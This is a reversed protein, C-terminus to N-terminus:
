ARRRGIFVLAGLGLALLGGTAPEPVVDFQARALTYTYALGFGGPGASFTGMLGSGLDTGTFQEKLFGLACNGVGLTPASNGTAPYPCTVGSGAVIALGPGTYTATNTVPNGGGVDYVVGGFDKLADVGARITGGVVTGVTSVDFSIGSWSIGASDASVLLDLTLIDGQAAAISSGGTTGSGTTGTWVLSVTPAASAVSAVALAILSTIAAVALTRM